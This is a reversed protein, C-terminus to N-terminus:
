PATKLVSARDKPRRESPFSVLPGAVNHPDARGAAPRVIGAVPGHIDDRNIPHAQQDRAAGVHIWRPTKSVFGFLGNWFGM